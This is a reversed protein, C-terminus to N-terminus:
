YLSYYHFFIIFILKYFFLLFFQFFFFFIIIFFFYLSSSTFSSSFSNFFIFTPFGNSSFMETEENIFGSALSLIKDQIFRAFSSPALTICPPSSDSLVRCGVRNDSTLLSISTKQSSINPGTMVTVL